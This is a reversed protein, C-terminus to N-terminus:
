FLEVDMSYGEDSHEGENAANSQNTAFESMLEEQGKIIKQMSMVVMSLTDRLDENMSLVDFTEEIASDVRDLIYDEQDDDLGMGPLTHNLDNFMDRMLKVGQQQNEILSRVLEGFNLKIKDFSAAADKVQENLAYETGLATVKANVAALMVPLLDKLRGYREMDDLPMNKVLLTVNPYNVITRSGFDSFRKNKDVMAMLQKELPKIMGSSSFWQDEKHMSFRLCSNLNLWDTFSFFAEALDEFRSFAYSKEVFQMAQGLESSGTMASFATKQALEYQASVESQRQRYGILVKVKAQLTEAEFPKILYDDAGVEYGQLRETLSGRGSLFVIPIEKTSPESRLRICVEYGNIDPMVLDLLIIEPLERLATEVGQNGNIATLVRYESGLYKEVVKRSVADDDIVLILKRGEM